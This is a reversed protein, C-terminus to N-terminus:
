LLLFCHFCTHTQQTLDPQYIPDRRTLLVVDLECHLMCLIEFSQSAQSRRQPFLHEVRVKAVSLGEGLVVLVDEALQPLVIAGLSGLERVHLVLVGETEVELAEVIM